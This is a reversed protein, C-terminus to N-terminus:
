EYDRAAFLIWTWQMGRSSSNREEKGENSNNTTNCARKTNTKRHQAKRSSANGSSRNRSSDLSHNSIHNGSADKGNELRNASSTNNCGDTAKENSEVVLFLDNARSKTVYYLSFFMLYLLIMLQEYVFWIKHKQQITQIYDIKYGVQHDGNL